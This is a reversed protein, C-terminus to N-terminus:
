PPQRIVPCTKPRAARLRSTAPEDLFPPKGDPIVDLTGLQAVPGAYDDSTIAEVGNPPPVEEAGVILRPPTTGAAAGRFRSM